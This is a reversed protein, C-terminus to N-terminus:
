FPNLTQKEFLRMSLQKKINSGIISPLLDDFPIAIMSYYTVVCITTGLYLQVFYIFTMWLSEFCKNHFNSFGSNFRNSYFYKVQGISVTKQLTTPSSSNRRILLETKSANLTYCFIYKPFIEPDGPIIKAPCKATSHLPWDATRM